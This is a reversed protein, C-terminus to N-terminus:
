PWLLSSNKRCLLVSWHQAVAMTRSRPFNNIDGFCSAWTEMVSSNAGTNIAVWVFTAGLWFFEGHKLFVLVWLACVQGRKGAQLKAKHFGSWSLKLHMTQLNETQCAMVWVKRQFGGLLSSPWVEKLVLVCKGPGVSQPLEAIRGKNLYPGSFCRHNIYLQPCCYRGNITGALLFCCHHAQLVETDYILPM